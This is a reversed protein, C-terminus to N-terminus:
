TARLRAAFNSPSSFRFATENETDATAPTFLEVANGFHSEHKTSLM